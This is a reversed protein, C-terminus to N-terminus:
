VRVAYGESVEGLRSRSSTWIIAIKHPFIWAWDIDVDTYVCVGM